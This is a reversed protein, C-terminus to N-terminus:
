NTIRFDQYIMDVVRSTRAGSRGTSPCTGRGLLEDVITQILPQQVHEPYTVNFEHTGKETSLIIAGPSFCPFSIWGTTGIIDIRDRYAAQYVTFCWSGTGVVGSEFVFSAVVNDDLPYWGAQNVAHGKASVIPGFVYDLYDLQHVAMDIFYGGGSIHPKVHWHHEAPNRDGARPPQTLQIHVSRVNGITDTDVLEKVKLFNPLCRRYFAVFLPVGADDCAKIMRKCEEYTRGMPKEVYVPKGAAAIKCVYEEHSGPPTAIYVANVNPDYILKDADDYWAPVNHREAYDRAKNGDRRMVAVLESNAAKQFGPGSKKETVDGCGIIGWQVKTM